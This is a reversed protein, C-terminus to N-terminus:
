QNNDGFGIRIQEGTQKDQLHVADQRLALVRYRRELVAGARAVLVAGNHLLYADRTGDEEKFGLLAFPAAASKGEGAEGVPQAALAAAAGFLDPIPDGPDSLAAASPVPAPGQELPPRPARRPERASAEVVVEPQPSDFVLLLGIVLLLALLGMMRKSM